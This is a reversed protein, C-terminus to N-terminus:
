RTLLIELGFYFKLLMMGVEINECNNEGHIGEREDM